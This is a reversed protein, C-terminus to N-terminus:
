WMSFGSLQATKRKETIGDCSTLGKLPTSSEFDAGKSKELERREYIRLVLILYRELNGEAQALEQETYDPYLDRITPPEDM